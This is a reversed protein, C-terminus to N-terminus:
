GETDVNKWEGNHFSKLKPEVWGGRARISGSLRGKEFSSGNWYKLIYMLIVADMIDLATTNEGILVNYIASVDQIDIANGNEEIFSTILRIANIVEDVANGNDSQTAFRNAVADIIQDIADTNDAQVLHYSANLVNPIDIANGQETISATNVLSSNPIDIANGVEIIDGDTSRLGNNVSEVANGAETINAARIQLADSSEVANGTETISATQPGSAIVVGPNTVIIAEDVYYQGLWDIIM